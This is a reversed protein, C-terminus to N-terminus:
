CARVFIHACTAGFGVLHTMLEEANGATNCDGICGTVSECAAFSRAGSLGSRCLFATTPFDTAYTWGNGPRKEVRTSFKHTAQDKLDPTQRSWSVLQQSRNRSFTEASLHIFPHVYVIEGLGPIVRNKLTSKACQLSRPFRLLKGSIPFELFPSRHPHKTVCRTYFAASEVRM